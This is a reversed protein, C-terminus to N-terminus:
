LNFKAIVTVFITSFIQTTWYKGLYSDAIFAGHLPVLIDLVMGLRFMQQLPWMQKM